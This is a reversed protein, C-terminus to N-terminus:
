EPETAKPAPNKVVVPELDRNRLHASLGRAALAYSGLKVKVYLETQKAKEKRRRTRMRTGKGVRDTEIM